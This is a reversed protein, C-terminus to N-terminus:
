SRELAEVMGTLWFPAVAEADGERLPMVMGVWDPLEPALMLMPKRHGSADGTGYFDVRETKLAAKVDALQAPRFSMSGSLAAATGLRGFAEAVMRAIRVPFEGDMVRLWVWQGTATFEVQVGTEDAHFAILPSRAGKAAKQLDKASEPSITVAEPVRLDAVFALSVRYRDTSMVVAGADHPMIHVGGLIPLAKDKSAFPITATLADALIM